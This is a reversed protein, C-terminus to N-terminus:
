YFQWGAISTPSAVIKFVQGTGNATTQVTTGCVYIEGDQDEGFGRVFVPLDIQNGSSDRLDIDRLVNGSDLYFLRGFPAPGNSDRFDGLILKGELETVVSGRYVFGCIISIGTNRGYEAIPEVLDTPVPVIPITMIRGPNSGDPDFYFSGEKIRWGYNGGSTIINLEEIDNQGVDGLYHTGTMSDFSHAFPNRLGYAWIEELNTPHGVFPNTAPIGYQGNTSNNGDVDIRLINGFINSPTQANGAPAHGSALDDSSGGDGIAIYLYGDPGFRITGGNHNFQPDDWRLLDRRTSMDIHTFVGLSNFCTWETIVGQNNFPPTTTYDSAATGTPENQHTYVKGNVAFNPHLAFGILGREDFSGPGFAGLPVIVGSLDAFPMPDVAFTSKNVITITGSQDHIFLRNSGDNPEVVGLPALLGSIVPEIRAIHTGKTLDPIPLNIETGTGLFSGLTAARNLWNAPDTSDTTNLQLTDAGAPAAVFASTSPWKGAAVAEAERGTLTSGGYKVGSVLNAPNDFDAMVAINHYLWIDSLTDSIPTALVFTRSEGPDLIFSITDLQQYNLSHCFQVDTGVTIPEDTWNTVEVTDADPDVETILLDTVDAAHITFIPLFILQLLLIFRLM